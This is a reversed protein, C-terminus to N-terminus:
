EMKINYKPDATVPDVPADTGPAAPAATGPAVPAATGPAVPAATDLPYFRRPGYPTVILNEKLDTFQHPEVYYVLTSKKVATRRISKSSM